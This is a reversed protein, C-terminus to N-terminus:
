ERGGGVGVAVRDGTRLSGDFAIVHGDVMKEGIAFLENFGHGRQHGVLGAQRHAVDQSGVQRQHRGIRDVDIAGALEGSMEVGEHEVLALGGM